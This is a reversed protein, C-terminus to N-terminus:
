PHKSADPRTAGELSYVRELQGVALEKVNRLDARSLDASILDTWHLNAERLNAGRLDVGRLDAGGLNARSLDAGGLNVGRLDAGRLDAGRLDAGLLDVVSRDKIILGTEYLFQLVRAKGGSDLRPLVRLTRGKALISVEDGRQSRRLPRERDNLLRVMQDLYASLANEQVHQVQLERQHKLNRRSLYLVGVVCAGVLLWTGGALVIVFSQVLYKREAATQPDIYIGLVKWLVVGLLALMTLGVVITVGILAIRMLHLVQDRERDPALRAGVGEQVITPRAEKRWGNEHEKARGPSTHLMEYLLDLVRPRRESTILSSSSCSVPIPAVTSRTRSSQGCHLGTAHRVAAFLAVARPPLLPLGPLGVFAASFLPLAAGFIQHFCPAAVVRALM